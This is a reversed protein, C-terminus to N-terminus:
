AAMSAALMASVERMKGGPFGIVCRRRFDKRLNLPV